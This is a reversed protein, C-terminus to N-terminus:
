NVNHAPPVNVTYTPQPYAMCDSLSVTLLLVALVFIMLPKNM